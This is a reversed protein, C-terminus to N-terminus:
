DSDPTGAPPAGPEPAGSDPAPAAPQAVAQAERSGPFIVGIGMWGSDTTLAEARVVYGRLRLEGATEARRRHGNGNAPLPVALDIPQQLEYACPSLLYAGQFSFNEVRAEERVRNGNTEVEVHAPLHVPARPSLRHSRTELRVERRSVQLRMGEQAAWTAPFIERAQVVIHDLEFDTRIPEHHFLVLHKVGVARALEASAKWSGHGWGAKQAGLEEPRYQADSILVDAGRALQRLGQDLEANGPEHDTAYVISAGRSEFRYAIAGQPHNTRCTRIRTKGLTFDSVPDLERLPLSARLASTAVPFFPARFLAHLVGALSSPADAQPRPGFLNLTNGQFYIPEFFPLGQVHDWHYHTFLLNAALGPTTMESMLQRGLDRIGTGADLIFLQGDPDRLELCPPNVGYRWADRDPAPISGRVGWFTLQM